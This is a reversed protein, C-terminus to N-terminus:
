GCEIHSDIFPEHVEPNKGSLVGTSDKANILAVRPPPITISKRVRERNRRSRPNKTNREAIRPCADSTEAADHECASTWVARFEAASPVVTVTGAPLQVQLEVTLIGHWLMVNCPAPAPDVTMVTLLEPPFPSAKPHAPLVCLTVPKVHVRAAVSGSPINLTPPWPIANRMSWLVM